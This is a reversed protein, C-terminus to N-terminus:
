SHSQWLLNQASERSHVPMPVSILQRCLCVRVGQSGSRPRNGRKNVCAYAFGSTSCRMVRSDPSWWPSAVGLTSRKGGHLRRSRRAAGAGDQRGVMGQGLFGVLRLSQTIGLEDHLSGAPNWSREDDEKAADAREQNRVATACYTAGQKGFVPCQAHHRLGGSHLVGRRM